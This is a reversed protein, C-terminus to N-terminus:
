SNLNSVLHTVKVTMEREIPYFVNRRLYIAPTDQNQHGRSKIPTSGKSKKFQATFKKWTSLLKLPKDTDGLQLETLLDLSQPLKIFISLKGFDKSMIWLAFLSHYEKSLKVLRYLDQM